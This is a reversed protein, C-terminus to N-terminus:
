LASGNKNVAIMVIKYNNKLKKSTYQLYKGCKAVAICIISKNYKIKNSFYELDWDNHAVAIKIISEDHLLLDDIFELAMSNQKVAIEVITKDKKLRPSAYQLYCGYHQVAMAVIDENDTYEIGANQLYGNYKINKIINKDYNLFIITLKSSITIKDYNLNYLKKYIPTTDDFITYINSSLNGFLIKIDYYSLTINEINFVKFLDGMSYLNVNPM